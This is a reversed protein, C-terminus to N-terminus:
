SFGEGQGRGAKSPRHQRTGKTAYFFVFTSNNALQVLLHFPPRIFESSVELGGDGAAPNDEDRSSFVNTANQHEAGGLEPPPPCRYANQPGGKEQELSVQPFLHRLIHTRTSRSYRGGPSVRVRTLMICINYTYGGRGGGRETHMIKTQTTQVYICLRKM